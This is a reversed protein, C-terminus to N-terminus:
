IFKYIRMKVIVDGHDIDGDTVAGDMEGDVAMDGDVNGVGPVRRANSSGASQEKDIEEKVKPPLSKIIDQIQDQKQKGTLTPSHAIEWLKKDVEKAEASLNKTKKSSNTTSPELNQLKNRSGNKYKLRLKLMRINM